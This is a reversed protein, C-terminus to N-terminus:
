LITGHQSYENQWNPLSSKVVGVAAQAGQRAAQTGMRKVYAQVKGDDDVTVGIEGSIVVPGTGGRAVEARSLVREGRELIAPVEGAKLGPWGGNHFRQAGAFIAPSVTRSTGGSGVIGGTHMVKASTGGGFLGFLGGGGGFLGALPGSGFLAAELAARALARAVNELTGALDEGAVIADLIGDKLDGQIDEFFQARQNAQEQRETLRGIAEAQRDIQEALTEGTAASRATLDLGRRRAENLLEQRAQLEAIEAATRGIMDLELEAAQLQEAMSRAFSEEQRGQRAGSRGAERQNDRYERLQENYRALAEANGIFTARDAEWQRRAGDSMPADPRTADFQAAALAGARGVPNDRFQWEIEARQLDTVSQAALASAANLARTLEDALRAAQGAAGGLAGAAGDAAGKLAAAREGAEQVSRYLARAEDNMESYPGLSRELTDLLARAATVAQDPTAAEALHRLAAAVAPADERALSGLEERIRRLTEEYPSQVWEADGMSTEFEGFQTAIAALTSRLGELATVQNIEMLAALFERAAGTATGYREALEATPLRAREAADRYAEVATKLDDLRDELTRAEEGSSVMMAILPVGIAVVAGLIGALAAFRGGMAGFAGLLQPAQQALARSADTGSAVQVAFDAVQNSANNVVFSHRTLVGSLGGAAAAMGTMRAAAGQASMTSTAYEANLRELAAEHQKATLAGVRQATNLRDLERSYRQSAAYLPDYKSRLKDLESALTRSARESGNEVAKNLRDFRAQIANANEDAVRRGRRMQTEFRNMSAELM